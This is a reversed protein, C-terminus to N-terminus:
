CPLATVHGCGLQPTVCLTSGPGPNPNSDTDEKETCVEWSVIGNSVKTSMHGVM